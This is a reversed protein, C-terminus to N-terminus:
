ESQRATQEGECASSEGSAVVLLIGDVVLILLEPSADVGMM